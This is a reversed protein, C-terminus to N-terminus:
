TYNINSFNLAQLEDFLTRFEERAFVKEKYAKIKEKNQKIISDLEEAKSQAAMKMKNIRDLENNLEDTKNKMMNLNTQMANLDDEAVVLSGQAEKIRELQERKAIKDDISEKIKIIESLLLDPNDLIKQAPFLSSIKKMAIFYPAKEQLKMKTEQDISLDNEETKEPENNSFSDDKLLEEVEDLDIDSIDMSDETKTNDKTKEEKKEEIKIKEQSKNSKSNKLNNNNERKEEEYDEEYDEEEEEEDEEETNLYQVAKKLFGAFRGKM